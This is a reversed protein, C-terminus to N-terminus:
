ISEASPVPLATKGDPTMLTVTLPGADSAAQPLRGHAIISAALAVVVLVLSLLVLRRVLPTSTAAERRIIAFEDRAEGLFSSRNDATPTTPPAESLM